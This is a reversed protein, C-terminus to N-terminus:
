SGDNSRNVGKIIDIGAGYGMSELTDLTLMMLKYGKDNDTGTLIEKVRDEFRAPTIIM